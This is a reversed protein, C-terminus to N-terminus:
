YLKQKTKMEEFIKQYSQYRSPLIDGRLLASKVACEPEAGHRCDNFRCQMLYPRFEPLLNDIEDPHATLLGFERFGPTDAAYGSISLPLLETCVTTHRGKRSKRCIDGVRLGLGPEIKNLLSSKGVGSQGTFVTLKEALYSKFQDIGQGTVASTLFVSYGLESYLRQATQVKKDNKLDIKNICIAARLDQYEAAMLFRDILNFNLKPQKTSTIMAVQDLNAVLVHELRQDPALRSLKSRRPLIKEIAGEDRWLSFEVLDGVAIPNSEGQRQIRFKGRLRCTYTEDGVETNKVINKVIYHSGHGRIVQGIQKM